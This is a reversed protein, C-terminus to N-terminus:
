KNKLRAIRAEALSKMGEATEPVEGTTEAKNLLAEGDTKTTGRAGGKVHTAQATKREEARTELITKLTTDKLAEGISKGLVKAVRVVEDFDESSVKSETLALFDKTSLTEQQKVEEKPPPINKKLEEKETRHKIKQGIALSLKKRSEIDKAVLKDIKEADATEDFGFEEIINKRVEEEKPLQLASQEAALEEPTPVTDMPHSKQAM